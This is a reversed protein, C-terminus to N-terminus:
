YGPNQPALNSNALIEKDPIPWLKDNTEWGPKVLSLTEDLKGLRKLDFFRHGHETFLEFKREKLVAAIIEDATSANTNSLGATNRIKNLDDKAETLQGLRARAESRILYQEALRFVVSYEKSTGTNLRQKYKYPFYWRDAGNTVMGVWYLKRRDDPEFSNVLIPSLAYGPISGNLTVFTAGENTNNGVLKPAFQWITATSEKLFVNELNNEWLYIKNNIVKESAIVADQWDGIYLYVRALLAWATARNPRAREVSIYTEPLLETAQKLDAIIANYVEEVPLRRVSKNMDYDTSSIYPIDGYVNSLYFHNLARIFTAEGIFQNKNAVSLLTSKQVGEIVANACYILHYSENWLQSTINNTALINNTYPIGPEVDTRTYILEDAYMGLNVTAGSRALFGTERQKSYIDVMAANTTAQDQFVNEGTLQSTPLSVNVFKKCSTFVAFTLLAVIILNLNKM